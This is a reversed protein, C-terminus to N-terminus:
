SGSGTLSQYFLYNQLRSPQRLSLSGGNWNHLKNFGKYKLTKHSKQQDFRQDILPRNSETEQGPGVNTLQTGVAWQSGPPGGYGLSFMAALPVVAVMLEVMTQRGGAELIPATSGSVRLCPRHGYLSAAVATGGLEGHRFQRLRHSAACAGKAGLATREPGVLILLIIEHQGRRSIADRGVLPAAMLNFM